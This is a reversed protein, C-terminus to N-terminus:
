FNQLKKLRHREHSMLNLSSGVFCLGSIMLSENRQLAHIIIIIENINLLCNEVRKRQRRMLHQLDIPMTLHFSICKAYCIKKARPRFLLYALTPLVVTLLPLLFGGSHNILRKKASSPVSKNAVKRLVAKHKKLKQKRCDSVKLNRNLENLCWESM